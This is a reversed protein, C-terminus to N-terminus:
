LVSQVYREIHPCGLACFLCLEQIGSRDSKLNMQQLEALAIPEIGIKMTGSGRLANEVGPIQNSLDRMAGKRDTDM